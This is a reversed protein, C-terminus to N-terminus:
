RNEKEAKKISQEEEKEEEGKRKWRRHGQDKAAQLQSDTTTQAVQLTPNWM